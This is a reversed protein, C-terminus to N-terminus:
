LWVVWSSMRDVAWTPQRRRGLWGPFRWFLKECGLPTLRRVAAALTQNSLRRAVGARQVGRAYPRSWQQNRGDPACGLRLELVLGGQLMVADAAQQTTFYGGQGAATDYLVDWEPGSKAVTAM